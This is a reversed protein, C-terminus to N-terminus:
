NLCLGCRNFAGFLNDTGNVAKPYDSPAHALRRVNQLTGITEKPQKFRRVQTTHPLTLHYHMFKFRGLRASLTCENSVM